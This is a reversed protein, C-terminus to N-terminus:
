TGWAAVFMRRGETVTEVWVKDESATTKWDGSRGSTAKYAIPGSKRREVRDEGCQM